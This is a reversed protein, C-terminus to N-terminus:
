VKQNEKNRNRIEEQM